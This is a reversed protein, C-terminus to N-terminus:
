PLRFKFACKVICEGIDNIIYGQIFTLLFDGAGLQGLKVVSGFRLNLFLTAYAQQM